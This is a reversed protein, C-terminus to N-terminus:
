RENREGWGDEGGELDERAKRVLEKLRWGCREAAKRNMLIWRKIIASRIGATDNCCIGHDAPSHGHVHPM